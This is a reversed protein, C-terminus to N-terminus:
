IQDLATKLAQLDAARQVSNDRATLARARDISADDTYDVAYSRQFGGGSTATLRDSSFRLFAALTLAARKDIVDRVQVPAVSRTEKAVGMQFAQRVSLNVLSISKGTTAQM